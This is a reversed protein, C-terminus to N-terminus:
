DNPSAKGEVNIADPPQPLDVEIWGRQYNATFDEGNDAVDEVMAWDPNEQAGPYGYACWKGTASIVYPIRVRLLAPRRAADAPATM